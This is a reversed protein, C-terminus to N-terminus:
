FHVEPFLPPSNVTIIEGNETKYNPPYKCIDNGFLPPLYQPQFSNEKFEKPIDAKINVQEGERFEQIYNMGSYNNPNGFKDFNNNAITNIFSFELNETEITQLNDKPLKEFDNVLGTYQIELKNDVETIFALCSTYSSRLPNGLVYTIKFLNFKSPMNQFMKNENNVEFYYITPSSVFFYEYKWPGNEQLYKKDAILKNINSNLFNILTEQNGTFYKETLMQDPLSIVDLNNVSLDTLLKKVMKLYMNPNLLKRNAYQYTYVDSNCSTNSNNNSNNNTYPFTCKNQSETCPLYRVISPTFNETKLSKFFDFCNTTFIVIVVVLILIFCLLSFNFSSM